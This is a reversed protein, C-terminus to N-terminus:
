GGIDVDDDEDTGRVIQVRHWQSLSVAPVGEARAAASHVAQVLDVINQM